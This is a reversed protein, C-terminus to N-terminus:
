QDGIGLPQDRGGRRSIKGPASRGLRMMAVEPPDHLPDVLGEVGDHGRDVLSRRDQRPDRLAVQRCAHRPLVGSVERAHLCRHVGGGLAEFLRQRLDRRRRLGDRLGRVLDTLPGLSQGAAGGLLGGRQLLDRGAQLLHRRRRAPRRLLELL